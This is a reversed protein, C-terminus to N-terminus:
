KGTNGGDIKSRLKKVSRLVLIFLILVVSSLGISVWPIIKELHLKDHHKDHSDAAHAGNKHHDTHSSPISLFKSENPHTGLWEIKGSRIDYVAGVIKAKGNKALKRVEDSRTLLDEISQWVNQKIALPILQDISLNPNSKKTKEVAPAINDVLQPISGHVESGKAVATVAGCSTHGMIILLPTGLHGVGYEISGTEDVDCVNGAVRVVFIDGYGVDFIYELPVRSDSCALITAIPKQGKDATEVRRSDSTNPYIRRGAASRESTTKLQKLIDDPSQAKLDLYCFLSLAAIFTTTNIEKM